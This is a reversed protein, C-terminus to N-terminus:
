YCLFMAYKEGISVKATAFRANPALVGIPKQTAGICCGNAGIKYSNQSHIAMQDDFLGGVISPSQLRLIAM